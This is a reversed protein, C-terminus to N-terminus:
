PQTYEMYLYVCVSAYVHICEGNFIIYDDQSLALSVGFM